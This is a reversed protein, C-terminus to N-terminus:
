PRIQSEFKSIWKPIMKRVEELPMTHGEDAAQIGRDIAALTAADVEVQETAPVQMKLDVM